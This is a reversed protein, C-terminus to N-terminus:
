YMHEFKQNGFAWILFDPFVLSWTQQNHKGDKIEVYCIDDDEYGKMMLETILDLSDEISDIVGNKNRDATEDLTGTQIWFKLHPKNRTKRVVDHMIRDSDTYGKKYDKKRWWFSGSFVGVKSFIKPNNWGIDFASLGGLSFGAIATHSPRMELKFFDEVHPM